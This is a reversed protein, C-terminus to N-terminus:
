CRLSHVGDVYNPLKSTKVKAMIEYDVIKGNSGYVNKM